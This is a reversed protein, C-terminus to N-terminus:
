APLLGPGCIYYAFVPQGHIKGTKAGIRAPREEPRDRQRLNM